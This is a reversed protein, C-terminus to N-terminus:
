KQKPIRFNTFIFELMLVRSKVSANSAMSTTGNASRFEVSLGDNLVWSVGIPIAWVTKSPKVNQATGQENYIKISGKRYKLLSAGAFVNYTKTINARLLLSSEIFHLHLREKGRFVGGMIFDFEKPDSANIKLYGIEPQIFLLNKLIEKGLYFRVSYGFDGTMQSKNSGGVSCSNAGFGIGFYTTRQTEQQAYITLSSYLLLLLFTRM